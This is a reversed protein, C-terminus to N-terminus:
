LITILNRGSILFGPISEISKEIVPNTRIDLNSQIQYYEKALMLMMSMTKNTNRNVSVLQTKWFDTARVLKRSRACTM